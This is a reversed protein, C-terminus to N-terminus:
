LWPQSTPSLVFFDENAQIIPFFRSSLFFLKSKTQHPRQFTTGKCGCIAHAIDTCTQKHPQAMCELHPHDPLEAPYLLLRRLQPDQTRIGVPDCLSKQFFFSLKSKTRYHSLPKSQYGTAPCPINLGLSPSIFPINLGLM